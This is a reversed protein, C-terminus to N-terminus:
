ESMYLKDYTDDYTINHFLITMIFLYEKRKLGFIVPLIDIKVQMNKDM